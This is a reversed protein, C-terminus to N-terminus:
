LTDILLSYLPGGRTDGIQPDFFESIGYIFRGLRKRDGIESAGMEKM